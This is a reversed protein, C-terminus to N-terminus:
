SVELILHNGGIQDFRSSMLVLIFKHIDRCCEFANIM